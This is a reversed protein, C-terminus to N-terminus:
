DRLTTLFIMKRVLEQVAFYSFIIRLGNIGLAQGMSQLLDLMGQKRQYIGPSGIGKHSAEPYFQMGNSEVGM